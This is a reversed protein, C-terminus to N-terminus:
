EDFHFWQEEPLGLLFDYVAMLAGAREAWEIQDRLRLRKQM